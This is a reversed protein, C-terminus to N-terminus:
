LQKRMVYDNMFYPGIPIDEEYVVQYCLKEYFTKTPNYKNVNLELIDRGAQRVVQEIHAMLLKGYGKGRTEPLCYLKHLKYVEPNEDRPSYSAFGVPKEDELILLYTQINDVIQERIKEVDYIYGIMYNLQDPALISGYTHLWIVDALGRIVAADNEKATIIQVM